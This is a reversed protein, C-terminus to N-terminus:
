KVLAGNVVIGCWFRSHIQGPVILVALMYACHVRDSIDEEREQLQDWLVQEGPFCVGTRDKETWLLVVACWQGLAMLEAGVPFGVEEWFLLGLLGRM